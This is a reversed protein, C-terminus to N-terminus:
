RCQTDVRAAVITYDSNCEWGAEMLWPKGWGRTLVRDIRCRHNGWEHIHDERGINQWDEREIWEELVRKKSGGCCNLDGLITEAAERMRELCAGVEHHNKHSPLCAAAKNDGIM